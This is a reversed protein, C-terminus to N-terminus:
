EGQLLLAGVVRKRVRVSGDGNCIAGLHVDGVGDELNLGHGNVLEAIRPLCGM